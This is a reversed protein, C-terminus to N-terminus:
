DFSWPPFENHILFVDLLDHQGIGASQICGDDDGPQLFVVIVRLDDCDGAVYALRVLQFTQLLSGDLGASGLEDHSVQGILHHIVDDDGGHLSACLILRIQQAGSEGTGDNGLLQRLDGQGFAGVGDAM